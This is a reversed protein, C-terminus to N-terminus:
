DIVSLDRTAAAVLQTRAHATGSAVAEEAGPEHGEREQLAARSATQVRGEEQTGDGQTLRIAHALLGTKRM